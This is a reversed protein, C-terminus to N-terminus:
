CGGLSERKRERTDSAKRAARRRTVRLMNGYAQLDEETPSLEPEWRGELRIRYVGRALWVDGPRPDDPPLLDGFFRPEDMM